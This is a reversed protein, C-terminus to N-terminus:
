VSAEQTTARARERPTRWRGFYDWIENVGFLGQPRLLMMLILMLAYIVLRYEALNVGRSVAFQRGAELAATAGAVIVFSWPKWHGRRWQVIAMVALVALGAPWV